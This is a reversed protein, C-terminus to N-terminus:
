SDLVAEVEYEDGDDFEVPEPVPHAQGAVPPHYPHLLDVNFVPHLQFAFLLKLKVTNSSIIQMIAFPGIRKEALKKNPQNIKLNKTELWVKEGVRYM